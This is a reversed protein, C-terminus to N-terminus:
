PEAPRGVHWQYIRGNYFHVGLYDRGPVGAYLFITRGGKDSTTTPKGCLQEVEPKTMGLLLQSECDGVSDDTHGCGILVLSIFAGAVVIILLSESSTKM